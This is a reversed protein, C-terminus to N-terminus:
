PFYASSSVFQGNTMDSYQSFQNEKNKMITPRAMSTSIIIKALVSEEDGWCPYCLCKKGFLVREGGGGDGFFNDSATM